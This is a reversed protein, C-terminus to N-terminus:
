TVPAIRDMSPAIVVQARGAGGHGGLRRAQANREVGRRQEAQGGPHPHETVACKSRQRGPGAEM